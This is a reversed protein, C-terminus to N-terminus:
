NVGYILLEVFRFLDVLLLIVLLCFSKSYADSIYRASGSPRDDATLKHSDATSGQRPSSAPWLRRSNGLM